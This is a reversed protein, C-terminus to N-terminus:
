FAPVCASFPDFIYDVFPPARRYRPNARGIQHPNTELFTVINFAGQYRINLVKCGLRATVVGIDSERLLLILCTFPECAVFLEYHRRRGFFEFHVSIWFDMCRGCSSRSAWFGRIIEGYGCIRRKRAVQAMDYLGTRVGFTLAFGSRYLPIMRISLM